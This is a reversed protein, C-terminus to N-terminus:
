KLKCASGIVMWKFHLLGFRLWCLFYLFNNSIHLIIMAFIFLARFLLRVARWQGPLWFAFLYKGSRARRRILECIFKILDRSIQLFGEQQRPARECEVQFWSLAKMKRKKPNGRVDAAKGWPSWPFMQSRSGIREDTRSSARHCSAPRGQQHSGEKHLKNREQARKEWRSRQYKETEIKPEYNM